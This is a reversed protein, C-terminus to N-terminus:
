RWYVIFLTLVSIEPDDKALENNEYDMKWFSFVIHFVQIIHLHLFEESSECKVLVLFYFLTKKCDLRLTKPVM